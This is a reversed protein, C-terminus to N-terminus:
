AVRGFREVELGGGIVDRFDGGSQRPLSEEQHGSTVGSRKWREHILLVPELRFHSRGTLLQIFLVRKLAALILTRPEAVAWKHGWVLCIPKRGCAALTRASWRNGRRATSRM